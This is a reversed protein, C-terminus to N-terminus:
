AQEDRLLFKAPSTPLGRQRAQDMLLSAYSDTISRGLDLHLQGAVQGVTEADSGEVEVFKGLLPLSDLEVWCDGLRYRRRRKQLHLILVFGLRDLIEVMADPDSVALEIEERQKIQGKRRAGKYTLIHEVKDSADMPRVSRLRLGQDAQLLRHEPSDFFRDDQFVEGGPQASLDRLRTELDEFGEVPIKCETETPM